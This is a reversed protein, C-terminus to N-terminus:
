SATVEITLPPNCTSDCDVTYTGIPSTGGKYGVWILVFTSPATQCAIALRYPDSANSKSITASVNGGDDGTWEQAGVPCDDVSVPCTIVSETAGSCCGTTIATADVDLSLIMTEDCTGTLAAVAAEDLCVVPPTAVPCPTEDATVSAITFESAGPEIGNILTNIWTAPDLNEPCNTGNHPAEFVYTGYVFDVGYGFAVTLIFRFKNGPICQVFGSWRCVRSGGPAPPPSLTTGTLYVTGGGQWTCFTLKELCYAVDNNTDDGVKHILFTLFSACNACIGTCGNTNAAPPRVTVDVLGVGVLATGGCTEPDGSESWDWNGIGPVPCGAYTQTATLVDCGVLWLKFLHICGAEITLSAEFPFGFAPENGSILELGTPFEHICGGLYVHSSFIIKYVVVNEEDDPDVFTITFGVDGCNDCCITCDCGAPTVTVTGGYAVPRVPVSFVNPTVGLIADLSDYGGTVDGAELINSLSFPDRCNFPTESSESAAFMVLTAAPGGAIWFVVRYYLSDGPHFFYWITIRAQENCYTTFFDGEGKLAVAVCNEPPFIKLTSAAFGTVAGGDYLSITGCGTHLDFSKDLDSAIWEIGNVLPPGLDPTVNATTIGAFVVKICGPPEDPCTACVIDCGDCCTDCDVSESIIPTGSRATIAAWIGASIEKIIKAFAM